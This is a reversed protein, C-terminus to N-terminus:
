ILKLRKKSCKVTPIVLSCTVNHSTFSSDVKKASLVADEKVDVAKAVPLLYDVM